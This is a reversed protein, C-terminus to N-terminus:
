RHPPRAAALAANYLATLREAMQEFSFCRRVRDLAANRIEDRLRPDDLLRSVAAAVEDPRNPAVLLGSVGDEIQEISGGTRTAVVPVGLAMAELTVGAFPEPEASCMALVDLSSVAAKIDDVDGTLVVRDELGLTEILRRLRHLHEENGPFPSGVIVFRLDPYPGALLAAARVFVEQGKREFKIRGVLGVLRARDLAHRRRFAAVRAPPVPVFEDAPLGNHVVVVSTMPAPFQAAVPGSVSVVVNSCRLMYRRYLPWLRAFRDFFERIHWVHPVGALAAAAGATVIPAVNSHVLDFEERRIFHVLQRVSRPIRSLFLILRPLSLDQRTIIALSPQLVVRVGADRLAGALPGEEPLMVTVDFRRRDLGAALRLLSRSAGYLDSISHVM